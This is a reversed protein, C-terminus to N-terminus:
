KKTGTAPKRVIISHAPASKDVGDVVLRDDNSFWTLQKPAATQGKLIDGLPGKVSDVLKPTNGQMVVKGDDAYYEAHEATGTRTRKLKESTSVIKVTGDAFAKDLSSDSDADKLFARIKKATIIMDPRKMVVGGTYDVVRTDETYVMDPATVVTFVPAAPAKAKAAAKDGDGDEDSGDSGNGDTGPEDKAKKEKDAFQSKVKGHAEMIGKDRDIDLRDADVRNAGQWAVANGEYHIKQNNDSSTMRQAHAQMVQDTALLASSSGSKDPLHTSAVHGEATFDGSKQNMVIRDASASGTPDQVRAAGELTMLDKQQDLTAHDARGRRDGEQYRFDTKQDLHALDSTKPDFIALLEKSTTIAPPPLPQKETPPKETRTTVNISRFSQIRNDAGYTVWIHDGKVFRKPQGARNPVIDITGAGATEASEIDRGGARMKLTITDSKLIRTDGIEAGPKPLPVAEAVGSGTAVATKLTSDKTSTDFDLDIRDGTVTTRMTAATSVLRGNRDGNIKDVQMNDIFHLNLRDAGFETKRDPEERIGHGKIITASRVEQDEITVISMAGEIKLTGRTMRSWPILVVKSEKELYYAEGAEIHMPVSDPTKGRWDLSVQSKLHLQRELPDYEAGVATGGGQDFDFSTARDTTAKGSESQFTVGSSHIKVIHGTQPGEVPVDRTIEVQGDSYLTKANPDFQAKACRVLDYETAEKHFLHLEVDELEVASTDKIQRMSSAQIFVRQQTGKFDGYTWKQSQANLAEDLPKPPPLADRLFGAKRKVYTAGVFVVIALIAALFLWRTRRM